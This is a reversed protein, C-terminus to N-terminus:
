NFIIKINKENINTIIYKNIIIKVKFVTQSGNKEEIQYDQKTNYNLFSAELIVDLYLM